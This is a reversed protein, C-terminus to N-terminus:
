QRKKWREIKEFADEVTKYLAELKVPKTFYDDFGAERCDSLEFLSGFGTVAYICAIPNDKKIRRCLELGDMGPMKLDTFMVQINEKELIKLAEEGRTATFVTYGKEKFASEYIELIMPEDDVCLIKNGM